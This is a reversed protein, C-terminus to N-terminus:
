IVVNVLKAKHMAFIFGQSCKVKFVRSWDNETEAKQSWWKERFWKVSNYITCQSTYKMKLQNGLCYDTNSSYEWKDIYHFCRLQPGQFLCASSFHIFTFTPTSGFYCTGRPVTSTWSANNASRILSHIQLCKKTACSLTGM